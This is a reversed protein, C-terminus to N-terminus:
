EKNLNGNAADNHGYKRKIRKIHNTKNLWAYKSAISQNKKDALNLIM